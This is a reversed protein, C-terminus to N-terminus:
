GARYMEMVAPDMQTLSKALSRLALPMDALYSIGQEPEVSEPYIASDGVVVARVAQPQEAAVCLAAWGGLSHGYLVAPRDLQRRVFSTVDGAFDRIRYHGPARGSQGHGRLDLAYLHWDLSLYPILPGFVQWRAALGHLLVLPPGPGDGEAYNIQVAGADFTHERLKPM